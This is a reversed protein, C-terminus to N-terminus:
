VLACVCMYVHLRVCLSMCTGLFVCVFFEQGEQGPCSVMFVRWPRPLQMSHSSYGQSHKGSLPSSLSRHAPVLAQGSAGLPQPKHIFFLSSLLPLSHPCAWARASLVRLISMLVDKACDCSRLSDNGVTNGALTVTPQQMRQQFKLRSTFRPSLTFPESSSRSGSLAPWATFAHSAM